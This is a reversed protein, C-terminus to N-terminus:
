LKENLIKKNIQLYEEYQSKTLSDQKVKGYQFKQFEDLEEWKVRFRKIKFHIFGFYLVITVLSYLFWIFITPTPYNPNTAVFYGTVLFIPYIIRSARPAVYMRGFIKLVYDLVFNKVLFKRFM